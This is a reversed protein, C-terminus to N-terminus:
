SRLREVLRQRVMGADAAGGSAKMIHGMIRGVAADKGAAFDEAAQPQAAIADSIWDDLAGIDSVQLLGAAEAVSEPTQDSECLLEFLTAAASSGVDGDARMAILRGLQDPSIGCAQPEVGREGAIRAAANLVWKASEQAAVEEEMGCAKAADACADFWVATHPSETLAAADKASLGWNQVYRHRRQMPLEPLRDRIRQRWCDDVELPVLDPEPFYRYDHADEKSRQLVTVGKVDDWGRTSKAGPGMVVGDSKWQEVQRDAEYEIAGQVARFSNLNKIEVIPTAITSGDEFTIEVNINPEFRMHGRQMIGETVGLARCIARLERGFTVADEACTLDPETVIELLPTGARNFDIISGDTKVGGPLEHGSKGTDEELHARTIRISGTGGANMPIEVAGEACLPHQYQSIQYGKPLDPYFYNKRDWFCRDPIRCGLATGVLMAMEVAERNMTPLAGPLALSVPDCLTNPEADYHDPHALNPSRSFMKTKTSLEVHIEMGVITQIHTINEGM